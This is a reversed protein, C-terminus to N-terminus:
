IQETKWKGFIGQKQLESELVYVLSGFPHWHKVNTHAETRAFEQMPTKKEESQIRPTNNVQKSAMQVAYPWFHANVSMEWQQNTHILMTRALDQLEKIRRKAIGNEHHSNIGAFTLGQKALRCCDVWKGNDAHYARIAVGHSRAYAEFVEKGELTL